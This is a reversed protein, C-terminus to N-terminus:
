PVCAPKLVYRKLYLKRGDWWEGVELDYACSQVTFRVDHAASQPSFPLLLLLLLPLVFLPLKQM